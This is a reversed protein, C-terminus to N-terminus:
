QTFTLEDTTFTTGNTIGDEPTLKAPVLGKIANGRKARITPMNQNEATV